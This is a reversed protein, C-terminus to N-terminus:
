GYENAWDSLSDALIQKYPRYDRLHEFQIAEWRERM